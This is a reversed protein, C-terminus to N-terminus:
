LGAAAWISEQALVTVAEPITRPANPADRLYDPIVEPITADGRLLALAKAALDRAYLRLLARNELYARGCAAATDQTWAQMDRANPFLRAAYRAVDGWPHYPAYMEFRNEM